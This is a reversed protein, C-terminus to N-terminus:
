FRVARLAHSAFYGVAILGAVWAVAVLPNFTPADGISTIVGGAADLLNVNYQLGLDALVGPTSGGSHSFLGGVEFSPLINSNIRLRAGNLPASIVSAADSAAGTVAQDLQSFLSM